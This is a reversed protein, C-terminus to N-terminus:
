EVEIDYHNSLMDFLELYEDDSLLTDGKYEDILETIIQSGAAGRGQEIYAEEITEFEDEWDHIFEPILESEKEFISEKSNNSIIKDFTAQM